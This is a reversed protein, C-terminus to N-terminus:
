YSFNRLAKMGPNTLIIKSALGKCIVILSGFAYGMAARWTAVTEGFHPRNPRSCDARPAIPSTLSIPSGFCKFIIDFHYTM